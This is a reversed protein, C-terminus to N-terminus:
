YKAKLFISIIKNFQQLNLKMLMRMLALIVNMHINSIQLM